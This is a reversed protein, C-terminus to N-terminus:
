KEIDYDYTVVFPVPFFGRVTFSANFVAPSAEFCRLGSFEANRFLDRVEDVYGLVTDIGDLADLYIVFRIAGEERFVAPSGLSMQEERGLPYETDIFISAPADSLSNIDHAPCQTIHSWTALRAKVADKVAKSPM